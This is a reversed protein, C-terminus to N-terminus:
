FEKKLEDIVIGTMLIDLMTISMVQWKWEKHKIKSKRVAEDFSDYVCKYVHGECDIYYVVYKM